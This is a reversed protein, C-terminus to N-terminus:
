PVFVRKWCSLKILRCCLFDGRVRVPHYLWSLLCCSRCFCRIMVFLLEQFRHLMRWGTTEQSDLQSKLLHKQCASYTLSADRWKPHWFCLCRDVCSFTSPPSPCFCVWLSHTKNSNQRTNTVLWNNNTNITSIKTTTVALKTLSPDTSDTILTLRADSCGSHLCKSKKM